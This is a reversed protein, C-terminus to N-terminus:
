RTQTDTCTITVATKLLPIHKIVSLLKDYHRYKYRASIYRCIEQVAYRRNDPQSAHRGRLGRRDGNASSPLEEDCRGDVIGPPRGGGCAGGDIGPRSQGVM